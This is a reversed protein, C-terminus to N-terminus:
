RRALRRTANVRDRAGWAYKYSEGGRLFHFERMGDRLAGEMLEGILLTGPSVFAFADDIGSMYLFLRDPPARLTLFGAAPRGDILLLVVDLAGAAHLPPAADALFRGVRADAGVGAEGRRAWRGQHLAILAALADPLAAADATAVHWCHDRAARNRSLRLTRRMKWPIVDDLAAGPALALAPCPEGATTESAWGPPAAAEVLAAGPPLDPLECADAGGADLVAALLFAAADPPAEPALLADHYDSLSVGVPLLRAAGGEDLLYCPLVGALRGHVHLTAIVPRGTGFQRWWGLLWHPSQFPTRAPVRRWLADWAPALADLGADDTVVGVCGASM